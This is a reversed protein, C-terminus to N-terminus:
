DGPEELVEYLSLRFQDSRVLSFQIPLQKVAPHTLTDPFNALFQWSPNPATVSHAANTPYKM